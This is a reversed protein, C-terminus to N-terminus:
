RVRIPLRTSVPSAGPRQRLSAGASTSRSRSAIRRAVPRFFAVAAIRGNRTRPLYHSRPIKMPAHPQPTRQIDPQPPLKSCRPAPSLDAGRIKQLITLRVARRGARFQM